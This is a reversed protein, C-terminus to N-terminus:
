RDASGRAGRLAASLPALKVDVQLAVAGKATQGVLVGELREVPKGRPDLPLDLRYGGGSPHLAQPKSYDLVRRTVPYFYAEDLTTGQPPSVALAISGEGSTASLGWATDKEPMQKRTKEFLAAAPGPAPNSRVPLALALEAKGPLCVEECELWSVRASLRVENSLLTDPVQIEVPLLVDHEYGYSVLPGTNFRNPRPWQLEGAAFGEPLDWKAKTPLGADGPNRWYTHWGSDMQLRLGAVLTQGPRISDTEAVLSVKVHRGRPAAQATAAAALLSSAVIAAIGGHM